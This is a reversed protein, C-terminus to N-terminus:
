LFRKECQGHNADELLGAGGYAGEMPQQARLRGSCDAQRDTRAHIRDAPPRAGDSPRTLIDCSTMTFSDYKATCMNAKEQHAYTERLRGQGM